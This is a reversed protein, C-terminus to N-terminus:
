AQWYQLSLSNTSWFSLFSFKLRKWFHLPRILYWPVAVQLVFDLLFISELFPLLIPSAVEKQFTVLIIFLGIPVAKNCNRLIRYAFSQLCSTKLPTPANGNAVLICIAASSLTVFALNRRSCDSSQVQQAAEWMKMSGKVFQNQPFSQYSTCLKGTFAPRSIGTRENRANTTCLM